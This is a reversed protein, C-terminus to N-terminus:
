RGRVPRRRDAAARRAPLAADARQSRPRLARSRPRRAPGRPRDCRARRSGRGISDDDLDVVHHATPGAGARAAVARVGTRVTVGDAELTARVVDSNRPHDTPALRPGSQVITMPVEFRAYVQALECGTPGGGLVLMSRPLERSLTAQENTWVDIGDIGPIRIPRSHSGVAVVVDSAALEHRVGDHTVTVRGRGTIRGDGRYCVAGATELARVHSTDDPEPKDAARNIMFDRHKSAHPWDYTRPNAHHEAAGHLLAKSPLCGVHPCSGGFWSGTSSPSPRESADLRTPQRRAAPGAGIIILDFTSEM